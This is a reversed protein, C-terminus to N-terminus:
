DCGSGSFAELCPEGVFVIWIRAHPRSRRCLPPAPTEEAERVNPDGPAKRWTRRKQADGFTVKEHNRQITM